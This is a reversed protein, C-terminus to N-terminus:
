PSAISLPTVRAGSRVLLSAPAGASPAGASSLPNSSGGDVPFPVLCGMARPERLLGWKRSVKWVTHDPTIMWMGNGTVTCQCQQRKGRM